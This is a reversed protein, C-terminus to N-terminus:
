QRYCEIPTGSETYIVVCDYEKIYKFRATSTAGTAIDTTTITSGDQSITYKGVRKGNFQDYYELVDGKFTLTIQFGELTGVYTGSPKASTTSSSPTTAPLACGVMLVLALCAIALFRVKM